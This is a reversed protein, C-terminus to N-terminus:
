QELTFPRTLKKHCRTVEGDAYVVVYGNNKEEVIIAPRWLNPANRPKMYLALPVKTVWVITGIKIDATVMKREFGM